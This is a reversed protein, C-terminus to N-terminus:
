YKTYINNHYMFFFDIRSYSGHPNSYFTYDRRKPNNERCPDTLGLDKTVNNLVISKKTSLGQEPPFRDLRGNQIANFDGGM